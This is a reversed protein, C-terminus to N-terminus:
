RAEPMTITVANEINSEENRLIAGSNSPSIEIFFGPQKPQPLIAEENTLMSNVCSMIPRDEPFNQVCLLGVQICRLIQSRSHSDELCTYSLELAKGEKWLLWAHGLLNHHHNPHFFKRIKMASVIELMLVGMSFVDSKVSFRGDVAYEPSMYGYTGVVRDTKVESEDGVFTRALGFDSIKPNLNIDLLINSAKLDRHIVQLRSDQHLYLLGRVIGIIIDFRKPWALLTDNQEFIFCDLSKNPMYEYILMKEEGQVCYGLLKVLNKHQLKAILVVENKFEELGQRSNKSLRKVAIDQGNCLHGKYVPGFGGAGIVNAPSFKNTATAVTTFDFLPVDVDEKKRERRRNTKKWTLRWLLGLTLLGSIISATIIVVEGKKKNLKRISGLESPHMRIYLDQGGAPFQKIDVLDGFWIACGTGERIDSNTYAMCTCNNLCEARCEELNMKTNVWSHTTDPLKLGSFKLFGHTSKEECSLRKNRVCGQSWDLSDWRQQSKPKFGKLCQCVPSDTVLCRAYAGCLAYTDCYDIPLSQFLKWSQETWTFRQFLSNTQNPLARSHLSQKLTFMFYAEDQNFVFKFSFVPNPKLGPSGSFGYGNWPGARFYITSGQWLYAEPYNHNTIEFIFNGPSPDDWNKWAILRRNLGRKLDWGHKMGPLMTDSPYDFSQWLYDESNNGDTVVLNGTDLLQLLPSRAEKLTSASWVVSNNQIVNLNGTSNIMLIGSTDNIPRVRNAVWVVTQVPISKYWIGLYRNKSSGPSFFGLVFNGERSVITDGDSLIQSPTISDLVGYSIKFLFFLLNTVVLISSLLGM